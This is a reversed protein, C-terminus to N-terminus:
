GLLKEIDGSLEEPKTTPAFREVVHGERDVLFKTFNWKIGETGLVGPESKKLFQYLPHANDGNVDIKAFVPFTVEYRSACFSKIDAADGPEQAGFQNCPFALVTLGRSGYRRYLSELGEYQPTFGCQSAVNVILLVQGRYSALEVTKDDIDQAQFDYVTTM